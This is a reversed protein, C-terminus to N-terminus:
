EAKKWKLDAPEDPDIKYAEWVAPAISKLEECCHAIADRYTPRRGHEKEFWSQYELTTPDHPQDPWHKTMCQGCLPPRSLLDALPNSM